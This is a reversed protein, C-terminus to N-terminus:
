GRLGAFLDDEMGSAGAQGRALRFSERGFIRYFLAPPMKAFFVEPGMQTAHAMVALRKREVQASVDIQTTILEDAVGIRPEGAEGDGFPAEIGAESM